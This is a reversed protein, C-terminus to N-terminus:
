GDSPLCFSFWLWLFNILSIAHVVVSDLETFNHAMDHQTEWSPHTMASLESFFFIHDVPSPFPLGAGYEQRSFGMFMIFLCFSIVKFSLIELDTPVWYAVPFSYLFLELFFSSASGFQLCCGTSTVLSPFLIRHQLSCYPMPIQFTLDMFWPLSSPTVSSIALTFMSM